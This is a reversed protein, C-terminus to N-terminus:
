ASLVAVVRRNAARGAASVNSEPQFHDASSPVVVSVSVHVAHRAALDADLQTQVAQAREADLQQNFAPTFVNDTYASLRVSHYGDAVVRAAIVDVQASLTPDLAYSGEAFSVVSMEITPPPPPAPAAAFTITAVSSRAGSFGPSAAITARVLCTGASTASVVGRADITCGRASGGVLTFEIRGTGSTGTARLQLHGHYRVHADAVVITQPHIIVRPARFEAVAVGSTAGLHDLDAAITATVLCTGAGDASVVGHADVACNAASGGVLAYTIAGTGAYGTAHLTVRHHEDTRASSLLIRQSAPLINVTLTTTVSADDDDDGGVDHAHRPPTRAPGGGGHGWWGHHHGHSWGSSWTDDDSTTATVDLTCQGASTYAFGTGSSSITCGATDTTGVTYTVAAGTAVGVLAPITVPTPYTVSLDYAGSSGLAPSAFGLTSTAASAPAAFSVAALVAAVAAGARVITSRAHPTSPHSHSRYKRM